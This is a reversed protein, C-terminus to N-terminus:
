CTTSDDAPATGEHILQKAIDTACRNNGIQGHGDAKVTVLKSNPGLDKDLQVSWEYPTAPDNTGGIVVIPGSGAYNPRTLEPVTGLLEKCQRSPDMEWYDPRLMAGRWPLQPMLEAKKAAPDPLKAEVIGSACQIIKVSQYLTSYNGDDSRLTYSDMMQFLPAGDGKEAAVLASAYDNWQAPYYMAYSTTFLLAGDTLKRDGVALPNATLKQRLQNWRAAIDPANFPCSTDAKCKTAWSEFAKESGVLQGLEISRPANDLPAFGADLVMAAVKDPFLTAYIAGLYTGYSTGIYTLQDVQLAKRLEEMDRATNLTSFEKIGEGYKEKCKAVFEDDLKDAATATEATLPLQPGLIRDMTPGDVCQIGSSRSVGRPDFSVFDYNQLALPTITLLSQAIVADVGSAGPGGPNMVVTGKREGQAPTKAVAIELKNGNPQQYDLPVELTACLIGETDGDSKCEGWELDTTPSDAPSSTARSETSTSSSVSTSSSDDNSNSCSAALASAILLAALGRRLQANPHNCM